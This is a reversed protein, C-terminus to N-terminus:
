AVEANLSMRTPFSPANLAPRPSVGAGAEPRWIALLTTGSHCSRDTEAGLM